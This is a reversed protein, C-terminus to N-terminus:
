RSEVARYRSLNTGAQWLHGRRNPQAGTGKRLLDTLAKWQETKRYLEELKALAAPDAPNRALEKELLSTLPAWQKPRACCRRSTPLLSRQQKSRAGADKRLACAAAGLTRGPPFPEGVRGLSGPNQPDRDLVKQFAAIAEDVRPPIAPASERWAWRSRPRIGRRGAGEHELQAVERAFTMGSARRRPWANPTPSCIPMANTAPAAGDMMVPYARDTAALEQDLLLAVERLAEAQAAPEHM